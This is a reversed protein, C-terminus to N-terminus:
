DVKKNAAIIAGIQVFVAIFIILTYPNEAPHDGLFGYIGVGVVTGLGFVGLLKMGGKGIRETLWPGLGERVAENDRHNSFVRGVRPSRWRASSRREMTSKGSGLNWSGIVTPEMFSCKSRSLPFGQLAEVYSMTILACVFPLTM